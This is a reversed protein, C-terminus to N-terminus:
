PATPLFVLRVLKNTAAGAPVNVLVAGARRLEELLGAVEAPTITVVMVVQRPAGGEAYKYQDVEETTEKDAKRGGGGKGEHRAVIAVAERLRDTQFIYGDPLGNKRDVVAIDAMPQRVKKEVRRAAPASAGVASGAAFKSVSSRSDDASESAVIAAVVEDADADAPLVVRARPPVSERKKIENGPAQPPEPLATEPPKAAEARSTAIEQEAPLVEGKLSVLRDDRQVVPSAFKADAIDPVEAVSSKALPKDQVQVESRGDILKDTREPARSAVPASAQPADPLQRTAYIQRIGLTTLIMVLSAALAVRTQPLNLFTLINSRRPSRLRAQIRATLDPPPVVPEMQQLLNVMRQLDVLDQRCSACAALHAALQLEADDDLSGDVHASMLERIDDCRM